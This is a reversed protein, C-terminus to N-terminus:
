PQLPTYVQLGVAAAANADNSVPKTPDIGLRFKTLNSIGDNLFSGDATQDLNGFYHLEWDDPLVDHDSDASVTISVPPSM